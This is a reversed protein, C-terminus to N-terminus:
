QIRFGSKMINVIENIETETAGPLNLIPNEVETYGKIKNLTMTILSPRGVTKNYNTPIVTDPHQILLYPVQPMLREIGSGDCGGSYSSEKNVLGEIGSSMAGAAGGKLGGSISSLVVNKMIEGYNSGVFSMQIGIQGDFSYLINGNEQEITAKVRGTEFEVRYFINLKTNNYVDFADLENFGIYPLYIKMSTSQYDLFNGYFPKIAIEGVKFRAYVPPTIQFVDGKGAQEMEIGYSGLYVTGTSDYVPKADPCNTIIDFPYVMLSLVCDKLQFNLANLSEFFSPKWLEGQIKLIQEYNLCYTNSLSGATGTPKTPKTIVQSSSDGTGGGNNIIQNNDQGPATKDPTDPPIPPESDFDQPNNENIFDPVNLYYNKFGFTKFIEFVDSKRFFRIFYFKNTEFIPIFYNTEYLYLNKDFVNLYNINTENRLFPLCSDITTKSQDQRFTPRIKSARYKMLPHPTTFFFFNFSNDFKMQPIYPKLQENDDSYGIFYSDTQVGLLSGSEDTEDLILFSDYGRTKLDNITIKEGTPSGTFIDTTIEDINTINLLLKIKELNFTNEEVYLMNNSPKKGYVSPQIFNYNNLRSLIEEKNQIQNNSEIVKYLFQKLEM